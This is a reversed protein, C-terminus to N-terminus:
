FLYESSKRSLRSKKKKRKKTKKASKKQASKDNPIYKLFWADWEKGSRKNKLKRFVEAKEARISELTPQTGYCSLSFRKLLGQQSLRNRQEVDFLFQSMCLLREKYEKEKDTYTFALYFSLITDITAVRINKNELSIENYNHCAIPSYIFALTDEGVLVEYHEPIVEGIADHKIIKSDGYGADKLKQQVITACLHTEECLVDFDPISKIMHKRDHPMYRAYLSSAYGGFFIVKQEILSDRVIFYIQSSVDDTKTDMTRQFDITDCNASELPYHTNLLTLRKLVKEWRSVDGNPRSLELFMSMRLFNPPTYLIGDIEIADESLNKFLEEHLITIDAMPIFNVYVKYTGYHVGAKAEVDAYGNKYFINALEIADEVPTQSYFDYDPIEVDRDYFQLESPLINNIATGGYCICKKDRLFQEVIEIMKKVDDSNANVKKTVDEIEDIAQRLIALECDQFTMDSTCPEPFKNQRKQKKFKKKTFRRRFRM